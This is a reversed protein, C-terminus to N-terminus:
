ESMYENESEEEAEMAASYISVIDQHPLSSIISHKGIVTKHLPRSPEEEDDSSSYDSSEESYDDSSSSYDSDDTCSDDDQSSYDDLSSYDTSGETSSDSSLFPSGPCRPPVVFSSLKVDGAQTKHELNMVFPKSLDSSGDDVQMYTEYPTNVALVLSDQLSDVKKIDDMTVYAFRATNENTLTDKIAGDVQARMQLLRAHEQELRAREQLLEEKRQRNLSPAASKNIHSSTASVGKWRVNNKKFKEILDIGELVNTIDYIRRKQVHLKDATKNLDLTGSEDKLLQIFLKTLM